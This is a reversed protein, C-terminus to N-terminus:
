VVSKRDELLTNRVPRRREDLVQGTLIMREGLPEGNKRANRTLDNDLEGISSHGYVPQRLEGLSAKLPILPQTPGRKATSKYGPYLYSPHSPWDRPTLTPLAGDQSSSSM